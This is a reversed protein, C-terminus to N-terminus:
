KYLQKIDYQKEMGEYTYKKINKWDIKKKEQGVYEMGYKNLQDQTKCNFTHNTIGNPIWNSNSM